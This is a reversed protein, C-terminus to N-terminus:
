FVGVKILYDKVKDDDRVTAGDFLKADSDECLGMWVKRCEDNGRSRMLEIEEVSFSAM